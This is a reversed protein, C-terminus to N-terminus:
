TSARIFIQSSKRKSAAAKNAAVCSSATLEVVIKIGVNTGHGVDLLKCLLLQSPLNETRLVLDRGNGTPSFSRLYMDGPKDMFLGFKRLTRGTPMTEYIM